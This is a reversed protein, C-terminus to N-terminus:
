VRAFATSRTSSALPTRAAVVDAVRSLLPQPASWSYVSGRRSFSASGPGSAPRAPDHTVIAGAAVAGALEGGASKGTRAEDTGVLREDPAVVRAECRPPPATVREMPRALTLANQAASSRMRQATIAGHTMESRSSITPHAAISQAGHQVNAGAIAVGVSAAFAPASAGNRGPEAHISADWTRTTNHSRVCYATAAVVDNM